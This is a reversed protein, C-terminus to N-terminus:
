HESPLLIVNGEVWMEIEDMPFDTFTIHKSFVANGNGDECSLTATSNTVKLRWVQFEETKVRPEFQQAIAIEDILWYAGCNEAVFQVGDTYLVKRNLSHRYWQDTGTFQRLDAATITPKM